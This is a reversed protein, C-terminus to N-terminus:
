PRRAEFANQTLKTNVHPFEERRPLAYLITEGDRVFGLKEQVRLSAENDAFAGSYITDGIEGAFAHAILATAAETMYGNGWHRRGLWYGLNPGPGRQSRSAPNMRLDVVGLLVEGQTIAFTTETLSSASRSQIFDIADQLSYPWPPQSLWRMVEWDGIQRCIAEADAARIPRLVLRATSITNVM